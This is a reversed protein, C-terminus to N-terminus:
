PEAPVPPLLTVSSLLSPTWRWCPLIGPRMRRSLFFEVSHQKNADLLVSCQLWLLKGGAGRTHLEVLRSLVRQKSFHCHLFARLTQSQLDWAHRRMGSTAIFSLILQKAQVGPCMYTTMDRDKSIFPRERVQSITTMQYDAQRYVGRKGLLVKLVEM